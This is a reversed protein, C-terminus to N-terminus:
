DIDLGSPPTTVCLVAFGRVGTRNRSPGGSMNDKFNRVTGRRQFGWFEALEQSPIRLETTEARLFFQASDALITWLRQAFKPQSPKSLFKPTNALCLQREPTMGLRAFRVFM